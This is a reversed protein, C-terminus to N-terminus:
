IHRVEGVERRQAIGIAASADVQVTVRLSVGLDNMLGRTGLAVVM